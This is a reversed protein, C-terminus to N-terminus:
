FIYMAKKKADDFWDQGDDELKTVIGIRQFIPDGFTQPLMGIGTYDEESELRKLVLIQDAKKQKYRRAIAVLSIEFSSEMDKDGLHLLIDPYFSISQDNLLIYYSYNRPPMNHLMFGYGGAIDLYPQDTIKVILTASILPGRFHLGFQPEDIIPGDAMVLGGIPEICTEELSYDYTGLGESYSHWLYTIRPPQKRPPMISAWSWTPARYVEHRTGPEAARWLLCRPVESLFLGGVCPGLNLKQMKQIAGHLAPLRDKEFTLFRETYGAVVKAWLEYLELAQSSQPSSTAKSFRLKTNDSSRELMPRGDSRDLHMCECRQTEKCEWVLEHDAFHVIRTALLKEQFAWARTLLPNFQGSSQAIMDLSDWQAHRATDRCIYIPCDKDNCEGPGHTYIVKHNSGYERVTSSDQTDDSALIQVPKRERFLGESGDKAGTASVVLEANEYIDAMKLSEVRWDNEDDQIICLSDIWIYHFGLKRTLTIADQFTKTLSGWDITSKLLQITAKTARPLISGGWCHSLAVYPEQLSGPEEIRVQDNTVNIIRAPSISQANTSQCMTHARCDKLWSQLIDVLRDDAFNELAIVRALRLLSTMDRM